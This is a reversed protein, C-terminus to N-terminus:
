YTRKPDYYRKKSVFQAKRAVALVGDRATRLITPSEHSAKAKAPGGGRGGGCPGSYRRLINFTQDSSKM